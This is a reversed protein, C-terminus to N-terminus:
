PKVKKTALARRAMRQGATNGTNAVGPKHLFFGFQGGNRRAAECCLWMFSTGLVIKRPTLISPTLTNLVASLTVGLWNYHKQVKEHRKADM